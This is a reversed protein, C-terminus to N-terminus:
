RRNGSVGSGEGVKERRDYEGIRRESLFECLRAIGEIEGKSGLVQRRVLFFKRGM